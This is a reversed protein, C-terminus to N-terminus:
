RGGLAVYVMIIIMCVFVVVDYATLNLFRVARKIRRETQNPSRETEISSM